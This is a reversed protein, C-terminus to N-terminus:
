KKAKLRRQIRKKTELAKLSLSKDEQKLIFKDFGGVHEMSRISSAAVKFRILEDLAESYVRKYQVNPFSRSKTKINSHSVLNSVVPGKGTLECRAM